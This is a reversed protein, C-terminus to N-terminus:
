AEALGHRHAYTAAQTRNACGTKRLISRVHNAATHESIMLAAGVERNSLGRAVLRLIEVERSSLGDPLAEPAAPPEPGISRIRALLARQGNAEAIAAAESLLPVAGAADGRAIRARAHQHLTHGLWTLMGTRRNLATAHAFHAEAREWEGLTAALMGLYRDAAGYCAVLHGIMVNTGALPELEPYVLAATEEDGLAACADTLYTLSALWLSERLSDLGDTRVQELEQRAAADMGLEVLVSVLGPRWPGSSGPQGALLRIVPALEALRGQERRIGFMQIGHVGSADRGTLLRSWDHSRGALVEADDLRGDCLAMAAGYHAAVHLMFPQATQEATEQLANVERRAADIDGLAVFTPVRWSLAEARIETNGLEEGIAAAETLMALIEELSNKGRSWYARMLVTALGTRDGSRRAMDIASTRVVAAREHDGQFDLARALGSLLGVRIESSTEGVAATAEELLEVAGQDAMGPRWCADEYGIAARGLLDPTRWSAPM